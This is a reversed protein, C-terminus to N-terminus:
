RGHGQDSVAKKIQDIHNPNSDFDVANGNLKQNHLGQLQANNQIVQHAKQTIDNWDQDSMKLMEHKAAKADEASIHGQAQMMDLIQSVGNRDIEQAFAFSSLLSLLLIAFIKKM